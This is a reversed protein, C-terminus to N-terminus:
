STRRTEKFTGTVDEDFEWACLYRHTHSSEWTERTPFVSSVSVGNKDYDKMSYGAAAVTCTDQATKSSATQDYTGSEDMEWTKFVEMRHPQDCPVQSSFAETTAETWCSGEEAQYFADPNGSAGSLDLTTPAIPTSPSTATTQDGRTSCSSTSLCAALVLVSVLRLVVGGADNSLLATRPRTSATTM